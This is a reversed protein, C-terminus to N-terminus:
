QPGREEKRNQYKWEAYYDVCDSCRCRSDHAWDEEVEPEEEREEELLLEDIARLAARHGARLNENQPLPARAVSALGQEHVSRLAKLLERRM